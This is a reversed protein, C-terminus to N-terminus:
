KQKRLRAIEISQRAIVAAQYCSQWLSLDKGTKSPNQDRRATAGVADAMQLGMDGSLLKAPNCGKAWCFRGGKEELLARFAGLIPYVFGAPVRFKSARGSFPLQVNRMAVGTLKGFAGRTVDEGFEQRATNYLRPLNLHIEDHLRLFDPVLPYLREYISQTSGTSPSTKQDFEKLCVMKSRYGNVPHRSGTFLEVDFMYLISIIDRIDISKQTGNAHTEYEKFAIEDAYPEYQLLKKLADFRGELQLLSEDKVQNSTNRAGAIDKIQGLDFGKLIELKVSRQRQHGTDEETKKLSGREKQIILHTHGGDILGHIDRETFTVSVEMSKNDFKVNDAIIVIGRNLYVFLEEEHLAARIMQPVKGRDKPDRLNSKGWESLDPLAQVDVTCLFDRFGRDDLPTELRKFDQVPFRFTMPQNAKM